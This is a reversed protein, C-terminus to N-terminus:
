LRQASDYSAPLRDARGMGCLEGDGPPRCQFVTEIGWTWRQRQMLIPPLRVFSQGYCRFVFAQPHM